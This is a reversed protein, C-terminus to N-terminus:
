SDFILKIDQNSLGHIRITKLRSKQGAIIAINKKRIGLSKALLEVFEKNARGDVPPSNVKVKLVDNEWGIIQSRSSRPLLKIKFTSSQEKSSHKPPPRTVGMNM